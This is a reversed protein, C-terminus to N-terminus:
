RVKQRELQQKVAGNGMLLARKLTRGRFAGREGTLVAM